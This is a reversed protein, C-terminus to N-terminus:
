FVQQTHLHKDSPTLRMATTSTVSRACKYQQTLPTGRGTNHTHNNHHTLSHEPSDHNIQLAENTQVQLNLYPKRVPAPNNIVYIIHM